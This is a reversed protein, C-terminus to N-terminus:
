AVPIAALGADYRQVVRRLLEKTLREEDPLGFAAEYARRGNIVPLSFMVPDLENLRTAGWTGMRHEWYFLDNLAFGMRELERYNAREWYGEFAGELLNRYAGGAAPNFAAAMARPTWEKMDHVRFYFGRVIEGGLGSLFVDTSSRGYLGHMAATLMSPDRHEGGNARGVSAIGGWSPSAIEVHHVHPISTRRLIADIIPLEKEKLPRSWTVGRFPVGANLWASYIARSDIGGTIGFLPSLGRRRGDAIAAAYLADIERFFAEFDTPERPSAPWYRRTRMTPFELMNNPILAFVDEFMTLDGPLTRVVQKTYERSAVIRLPAEALPIGYAHALLGSHSAFAPARPDGRYFISRAGFADHFVSVAGGKCVIVAFRGTANRLAAPADAALDAIAPPALQPTAFILRGIIAIESGDATRHLAM